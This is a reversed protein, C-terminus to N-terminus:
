SPPGGPCKDSANTLRFALVTMDDPKSPCGDQPSTMRERAKTVVKKLARKLPGKRILQVIEDVHLNDALGDSAIVLTDRPAMKLPAGVEIRMDETGVINSVVHRDDHHMAEIEDLLGAEVGYGVPSHAITQLKIKGKNGVVLISSDGVHYPRVTRDQVQVIALTTAAGLGMGRVAENGREIGNM